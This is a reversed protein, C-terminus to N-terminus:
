VGTILSRRPTLQHLSPKGSTNGPASQAGRCRARQHTYARSHTRKYTIQIHTKHPHKSPHITPPKSFLYNLGLLSPFSFCLSSLPHATQTKLCTRPIPTHKNTAACRDQKSIGKRKQKEQAKQIQVSIVTDQESKSQLLQQQQPPPNREEGEEEKEEERGEEGAGEQQQYITPTASTTTVGTEDTMIETYVYSGEGDEEGKHEEQQSRTYPHPHHTHPPSSITNATSLYSFLAFHSSLFHSLLSFLSSVLSVEDDQTGLLHLNDM